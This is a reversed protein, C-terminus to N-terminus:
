INTCAYVCNKGDWDIYWQGKAFRHLMANLRQPHTYLFLGSWRTVRSVRHHGGQAGSRRHGIDEVIM